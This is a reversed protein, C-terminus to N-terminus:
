LFHVFDLNTRELWIDQIIQKREEKSINLDNIIACFQPFERITALLRQGYELYAQVANNKYAIDFLVSAYTLNLNNNM